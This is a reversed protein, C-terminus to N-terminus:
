KRRSTLSKRRVASVRDLTVTIAGTMQCPKEVTIFQRLGIQLRKGFEDPLVSKTIQECTM